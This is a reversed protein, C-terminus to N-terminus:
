AAINARELFLSEAGKAAVTTAHGLFRGDVWVTGDVMVKITHSACQYLHYDNNDNDGGVFTTSTVREDDLLFAQFSSLCENSYIAFDTWAQTWDDYANIDQNSLFLRWAYFVSDLYNYESTKARPGFTGLKVILSTLTGYAVNTLAFVHNSFTTSSTTFFIPPM